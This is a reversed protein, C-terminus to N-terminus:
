GLGIASLKAFTPSVKSTNHVKFQTGVLEIAAAHEHQYCHLTCGETDDKGPVLPARYSVRNHVHTGCQGTFQAVKAREELEAVTPLHDGKWRVYRWPKVQLLAPRGKFTGLELAQPYHGDLTYPVGLPNSPNTWEGGWADGAAKCVLAVDRGADDRTAFISLDDFEGVRPSRLVFYNLDWAKDFWPAGIKARYGRLLACLDRADLM